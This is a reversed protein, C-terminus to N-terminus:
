FLDFCLQYPNTKQAHSVPEVTPCRTNGKNKIVGKWVQKILLDPDVLSSISFQDVPIM